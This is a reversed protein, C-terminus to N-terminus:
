NLEPAGCYRKKLAEVLVNMRSGNSGKIMVADGPRVADLLAAEIKLSEEGWAGRKDDDLADYLHRMNPGSAFVLDVGAADIAEKLGEHLEAADNGLELMDGLVAIRRGTLPAGTWHRTLALNELAARVSAPNANYSEDILLVRRWAADHAQLWAQTGRGSPPKVAALAEVATYLEGPEPDVAYLAAVVAVSNLVNHLGSLGLSYEVDLRDEILLRVRSGSSSLDRAVLRVTAGDHEGFTLIKAGHESARAKLVDAHANDAPIIAEGQPELGSFIEAKAEAIGAVSDFHALHVAEVTTVIAAHPRVMKTLPTIEGAHNMGIEFIAYRTEQAMRALSLPVGWHNNYSKESAHVSDSAIASAAHFLMEKTTTKGASGTVAIVRAEPSLRARAARGIDELAKLPDAVRILAGDYATKEYETSVLAVAAGREFADSVFDHGDRQDKLAVFVDGAVLLRTDISFGSITNDPRGDATGKAAAVLDDFTWLESPM